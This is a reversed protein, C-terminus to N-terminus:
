AFAAGGSSSGFTFTVHLLSAYLAGGAMLAIIKPRDPPRRSSIFAM